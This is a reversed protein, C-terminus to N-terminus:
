KLLYSNISETLASESKIHKLVPKNNIINIIYQQIATIVNNIHKYNQNKNYFTQLQKVTKLM